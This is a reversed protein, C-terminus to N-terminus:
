EGCGWRVREGREMETRAAHNRAEGGERAGPKGRQSGGHWPSALYVRPVSACGDRGVVARFPGESATARAASRRPGCPRAVERLACGSEATASVTIQLGAAYRALGAAMMPSPVSAEYASAVEASGVSAVVEDRSREQLAVTLEALNAGAALERTFWDAWAVLRTELDDLHWEVDDAGGFHTPLIRHAGLERMRRISGLWAVVDIDPPPTPPRVHAVGPFRIGGVDGSFLLGADPDHYAHHHVAHGPTDIARLIRRGIRVEDGDDLVRLRDEPVPIITGWLREMRDGYIRTASALLREPRTLHRAGRPHVYVTARPTSRLLEGAGGAHDLHVHTLLIHTVAGPDHGAARIGDLLAPLTSGPGSEIVALEGGDAVIYSAVQGALDRWRLDIRAVGEAEAYPSASTEDSAM